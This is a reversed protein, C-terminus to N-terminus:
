KHCCLWRVNLMGAHTSGWLERGTVVIGANINGLSNVELTSGVFDGPKSMM